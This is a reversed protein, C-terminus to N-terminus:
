CRRHARRRDGDAYRVQAADLVKHMEAHAKKGADPLLGDSALEHALATLRKAPQAAASRGPRRRCRCSSRGCRRRSRGPQADDGQPQHARSPRAAATAAM